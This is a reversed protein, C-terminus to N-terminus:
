GTSDFFSTVGAMVAHKEEEVLEPYIPLSLLKPNNETAVPTPEARHPLAAFAPQEALRFPYVRETGIGREALHEALAGARETHLTYKYFVHEGRPLATPTNLPLGAFAKDYSDAIVRRQENWAPLLTLQHSLVAANLESLRSRGGWGHHPHRTGRDRGLNRMRRVARVNDEDKVLVLGGDDVGGLNKGAWLSFCAFDGFSGAPRGRYTADHAQACDEVVVLDHEKAIAMIADMEAVQGYLHVAIIARTRPTIARRVAAPSILWSGPEVDVFVPLAGTANVAFATAVFTMDPVIVEDGPGIGAARVSFHLSDTGSSTAVAHGGWRRGLQEELRRTCEGLSTTGSDLVDDLLDHLVHRM